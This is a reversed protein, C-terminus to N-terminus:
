PTLLFFLDEVTKVTQLSRKKINIFFQRIKWYKIGTKQSIEKLSLPFSPQNRRLVLLFLIWHFLCVVSSTMKHNCINNLPFRVIHNLFAAIKPYYSCGQDLSWFRKFNRHCGKWSMGFRNKVLFGVTVSSLKSIILISNYMTRITFRENKSKKVHKKLNV